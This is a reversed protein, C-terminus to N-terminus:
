LTFKTKSYFSISLTYVLYSARYVGKQVDAPPLLSCGVDVDTTGLLIPCMGSLESLDTMVAQNSVGRKLTDPKWALM